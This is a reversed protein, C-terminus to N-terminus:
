VSFVLDGGLIFIGILIVPLFFWGLFVLLAGISALIISIVGISLLTIRAFFGVIRMMLNVFLSGLWRGPHFGSPLPEGLRRWRAFLTRVLINMSFFHYLFWMMNATLHWLDVLAQTYHWAIYNKILIFGTM